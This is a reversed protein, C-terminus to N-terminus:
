AMAPEGAFRTYDPRIMARGVAIAGRWMATEIGRASLIGADVCHEMNAIGNDAFVRAEVDRFRRLTARLEADSAAYRRSIARCYKLHRQEDSAVQALVDASEPDLRRFMPSLIAFQTVAREESVQLLAYAEM